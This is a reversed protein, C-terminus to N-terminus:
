LAAERRQREVLLAAEAEQRRKEAEQRLREAEAAAENAAAAEAALRAFDASEGLNVSTQGITSTPASPGELARRIASLSPGDSRGRSLVVGDDGSIAPTQKRGIPLAALAGHTYEHVEGTSVTGSNDADAWGWLAGLALYSFAPRSLGPLPGAFQKSTGASLVVTSVSSSLSYSPVMPQLGSVLATEGSSQGSFCADIIAVTQSQSGGSLQELVEGQQLGRAYVSSATQQTDWGVLLGDQGDSAPAGHGIFVFWLTGGPKVASRALEIADSIGERTADNDTVLQVRSAAIGRGDTLYSYWDLGNAKAGPIDFVSNYDEIAVVVAADKSGGGMGPPESLDPWMAEAAFSPPISLLTLLPFFRRM